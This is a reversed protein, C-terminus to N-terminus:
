SRRQVCAEASSGSRVWPPLGRSRFSLSVEGAESDLMAHGAGLYRRWHRRIRRSVLYQWPAM